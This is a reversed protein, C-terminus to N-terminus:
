ASRLRDLPVRNVVWEIHQEYDSAVLKRALDALDDLPGYSHKLLLAMTGVRGEERGVERGEERGVERGEERGEERGAERSRRALDRGFETQELIDSMGRRVLAKILQDALPRAGLKGLEVLVLQDDRDPVAAIRDAVQEVADPPPNKSWLALPALSSALLRDADLDDPLSVSDYAHHMRGRRFYGSCGGGLPWLALQHIRYRSEDYKLALSCFYAAMRTPFDRTREVQVEVHYLDHLPAPLGEEAERYVVFVKDRNRTLHRQQETPGEIVPHRGDLEVGFLVRLTDEPHAEMLSKFLGDYDRAPASGGPAEDVTM